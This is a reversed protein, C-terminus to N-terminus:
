PLTRPFLSSATAQAPAPCGPIPWPFSRFGPGPVACFRREKAFAGRRALLRGGPVGPLLETALVLPPVAEPRCWRKLVRHGDGNREHIHVLRDPSAGRLRPLADLRVELRGHEPVVIDM